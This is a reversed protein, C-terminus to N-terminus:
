GNPPTSQKDRAPVPRGQLKDDEEEERLDGNSHSKGPEPSYLGNCYEYPSQSVERSPGANANHQDEEEEKLQIQQKVEDLKEEPLARSGPLHGNCNLEDSAGSTLRERPHGPDPLSLSFFTWISSYLFVLGHLACKIGFCKIGLFIASKVFYLVNLKLHSVLM